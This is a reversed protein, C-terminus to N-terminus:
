RKQNPWFHRALIDERSFFDRLSRLGQRCQYLDIQPSQNAADDSEGTCPDPPKAIYERMITTAISEGAVPVTVGTPM